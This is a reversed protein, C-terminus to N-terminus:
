SAQAGDRSRRVTVEARGAEIPWRYVLATGQRLRDFGKESKAVTEIDYRWEEAGPATIDVPTAVSLETAFWAGDPWGGSPANWTWACSVGGDAAIRLRKVLNGGRMTIVSHDAGVVVEHGMRETSWSQHMPITGAVFDDITAGAALIRDVFIARADQDVPPLEALQGELDHISPAGGDAERPAAARDAGADLPEHYAERYRM